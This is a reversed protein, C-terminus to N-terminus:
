PRTQSPANFGSKGALLCYRYCFHPKVKLPPKLRDCRMKGNSGTTTDRTLVEGLHDHCLFRGLLNGEIEVVVFM